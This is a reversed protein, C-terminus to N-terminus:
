HNCDGLTLHLSCSLSPSIPDQKTTTFDCSPGSSNKVNRETGTLKHWLGALRAGTALCRVRRHRRPSPLSRPFPCNEGKLAGAAADQPRHSALVLTPRPAAGGGQKRPPPKPLPPSICRDATVRPGALSSPSLRRIQPFLVPHSIVAGPLPTLLPPPPPPHLRLPAPYGRLSGSGTSTQVPRPPEGGLQLPRQGGSAASRLRRRRPLAARWSGARLAGRASSPRPPPPDARRCREPSRLSRLRGGLYTAHCGRSSRIPLRRQTSTSNDRETFSSSQSAKNGKQQQLVGQIFRFSAGPANPSTRPLFACAVVLARKGGDQAKRPSKCCCLSTHLVSPSIDTNLDSKVEAYIVM